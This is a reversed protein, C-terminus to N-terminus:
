FQVIPSQSRSIHLSPVFDSDEALVTCVRLSQAMEEARAPELFHLIKVAM